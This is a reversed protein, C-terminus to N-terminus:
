RLWHPPKGAVALLAKRYAAEAHAARAVELGHLRGFTFGNEGALYAQMGLERLVQQTVLSDQHEGLVEQLNEMAAALELADAGFLPAVAEGAYRARKAAKRVEHLAVAREDATPATDVDRARDLVRRRARAVLRPLVDAAPQDARGRLPPHSVLADLADLLRFYRAGGLEIVLERHKRRHRANLEADIRRRVPGIVLDGPQSALVELLRAHMVEEDRPGGLVAGLWKLEVRIPETVSRDLLSRFTALASRLRRTAVRMKHVADPADAKALPDWRVLADVQEALHRCVVTGAAARSDMERPEPASRQQPVTGLVRALKSASQAPAAGAKQLRAGTAALLDRDGRVLEIEVERWALTSDSGVAQAEVRDDAVEALKANDDGFLPIVSRHTEITAAPALRQDRVHVRVVDVLARPPTRTARGLPRHVEVRADDLKPTKLHWGADPGGTRRRLTIGARALRLDPTDFYTAAMEHDVQPGVATVGPLGTLDPVVFDAPTDFKIEIEVQEAAASTV